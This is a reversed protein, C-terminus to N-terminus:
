HTILIIRMSFRLCLVIGNVLFFILGIGALILVNLFGECINSGFFVSQMTIDKKLTQLVATNHDVCFYHSSIESYKLQTYGRTIDHMIRRETVETMLRM